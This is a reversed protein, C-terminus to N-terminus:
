QKFNRSQCTRQLSKAFFDTIDLFCSFTRNLSGTCRAADMYTKHNARKHSIDEHKQHRYRGHQTTTLLFYYIVFL